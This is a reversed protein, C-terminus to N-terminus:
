RRVIWAPTVLRRLRLYLLGYSTSSLDYDTVNANSSSAQSYSLSLGGASKSSVAKFQEGNAYTPNGDADVNLVGKIALNHAVLACLGQEYFKGWVKKCLVIEADEFYLAILDADVGSFEPYRLLFREIM